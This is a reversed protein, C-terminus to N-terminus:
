ALSPIYLLVNLVSRDKLFNQVSRRQWNRTLLGGLKQNNNINSNFGIGSHLIGYSIGTLLNPTVIKYVQGTFLEALM